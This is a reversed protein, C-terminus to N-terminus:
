RPINRREAGGLVATPARLMGSCAPPTHWLRRSQQSGPEFAGARLPLMCTEPRNCEGGFFRYERDWFFAAPVAGRCAQHGAAHAAQLRRAAQM